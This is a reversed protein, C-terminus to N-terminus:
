KQLLDANRKLSLNPFLKVDLVTSFISLTKYLKEYLTPKHYEGTFNEVLCLKEETEFFCHIKDGEQVPKNGIAERVRAENTRDNILVASTVTKKSAWKSIDVVREIQRAYNLYCFIINDWKNGLILDIVSNVFERLAPEKTTAKLASGKTTRNGKKDVLIYNKAKIILVKDYYGDDCWKIRDPFNSNIFETFTKLEEDTWKSGDPKNVLISDTDCNILRLSYNTM